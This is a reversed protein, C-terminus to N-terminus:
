KVILHIDETASQSKASNQSSISTILAVLETSKLVRSVIDEVSVGAVSDSPGSVSSSQSVHLPDEEKIVSGSKKSAFLQCTFQGNTIKLM